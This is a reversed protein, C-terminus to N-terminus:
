NPNPSVVHLTDSTKNNNSNPDNDSSVKANIVFNTGVPVNPSVPVMIKVKVGKLTFISPLTGISCSVTGPTGPTCAAGVTIDSCSGFLNCSVLAASATLNGQLYQSPASANITVGYAPAQSFDLAWVVYTLTGGPIVNDSSRGEFIAVDASPAAITYSVNAQGQNGACDTTTAVFNHPGFASPTTDIPNAFSFSSPNVGPAAPCPAPVQGNCNAVGAGVDACKYTIKVSQGIQFSSGPVSFTYGIVPSAQDVAFTLPAIANSPNGALDSAQQQPITAVPNASNAAVNTSAPPLAESPSGQIGNTIPLFGSGTQNAVYGTETATCNETVNSRYWGNTGNPAAPTTTCALSPPATDVGFRITPFSAWNAAPDSLQGATPNFLLEESFACDTTFYHLNYQGDALSTFAASSSFPNTTGAPCLPTGFKQNVGTNYNTMDGPVPYTTDPVPIPHGQADFANTIGSTLSYPPQATFGNSLPTTATQNYTAENSIFNATVNGSTVWGNTQGAITAHTFPLPMNVVPVYITNRGPVGGGPLPDAAGKFQTLTDAPCPDNALTGTLTCNTSSYTPPTNSQALWNDGGLLFGPGILTTPNIGPSSSAACTGNGVGRTLFVFNACSSLLYNQGSPADPSTFQASDYLNRATNTGSVCNDGSAQGTATNVCVLKFAKCLTKSTNPDVEGTMRLCVAPGASTNAVLENFLEQPIGINTVQPVTGNPAGVTGTQIATSESATFSINQGAGSDFTFTQTQSSVNGGTIPDGTITGGPTIGALSCNTVLHLTAAGLFGGADTLQVAFSQMGSQVVPNYLPTPGAGSSQLNLPQVGYTAVFSGPGGDGATALDPNQGVYSPAVSDYSPQFCNSTGPPFGTFNDFNTDGGYCVNTTTISDGGKPTDIIQITNDQFVNSLGDPTSSLIASPIAPCSLNITTTKVPQGAYPATQGNVPNTPSAQWTVGSFLSKNINLAAFLEIAGYAGNMPVTITGTTENVSYSINLTATELTFDPASSDSFYVSVTCTTPPTLTGTCTNGNVIFDAPKTGPTGSSVTGFTIPAAGTLNVTVTQASSAAPSTGTSVGFSLDSPSVTVAQTTGSPTYSITASFILGAPGGLNVADFYIWNIGSVLLPGISADTYTNEQNFACVNNICGPPLGTSGPLATGNIYIGPKNASGLNNDVDYYLTLSASSVTTPINFSIAYLATDGISAGAAPNTGIWVAGPGHPLSGIYSPTSTLVSAAPGTQAATFNAATFPSPFDSSTLGSDLYTVGSGSNITVSQASARPLTGFLLMVLVTALVLSYRSPSVVVFKARLNMPVRIKLNELLCCASAFAFQKAKMVPRRAFKMLGEQPAFPFKLPNNSRPVEIQKMVLARFQPSASLKRARSVASMRGVTSSGTLVM